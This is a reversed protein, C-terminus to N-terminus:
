CKLSYILGLIKLTPITKNIYEMLMLFFKFMLFYILFIM